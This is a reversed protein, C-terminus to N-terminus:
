RTRDGRVRGAVITLAVEDAAAAASSCWRMFAGLRAPKATLAWQTATL